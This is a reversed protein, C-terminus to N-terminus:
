IHMWKKTQENLPQEVLGTFYHESPLIGVKKQLKLISKWILINIITKRLINCLTSSIHKIILCHLKYLSHILHSIATRKLSKNPVKFSEVVCQWMVATWFHCKWLAYRLLMFKIWKVFLTDLLLLKWLFHIM